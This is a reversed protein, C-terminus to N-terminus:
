FNSFRQSLLSLTHTHKKKTSEIKKVKKERLRECASWLFSLYFCFFLSASFINMNSSNLNLAPLYCKISPTSSIVHVWVFFLLLWDSWKGNWMRLIVCLSRMTKIKNQKWDWLWMLLLWKRLSKISLMVISFTGAAQSNQHARAEIVDM